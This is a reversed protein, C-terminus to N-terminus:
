TGLNKQEALMSSLLLLDENREDYQLIEALMAMCEETLASRNYSKLQNTPLTSLQDSCIEWAIDMYLKSLLIMVSFIVAKFYSSALCHGIGERHSIMSKKHGDFAWHVHSSLWGYLKGAFCFKLKFSAIARSASLKHVANEDIESNIAYAWALQELMMRAIALAEFLAGRQGCHALLEMSFPARTLTWESVFKCTPKNPLERVCAILSEIDLMKRSVFSRIRLDLRTGDEEPYTVDALYNKLVYDVSRLGLGESIVAAAIKRKLSDPHTSQLGIQWPSNALYFDYEGGRFLPFAARLPENIEKDGTLM